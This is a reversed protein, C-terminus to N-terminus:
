IECTTQKQGELRGVLFTHPTRREGVCAAYWVWKVRESKVM